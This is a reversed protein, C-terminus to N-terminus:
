RSRVRPSLLVEYVWGDETDYVVVGEVMGAIPDRTHEAAILSLAMFEEMVDIVVVRQSGSGVPTGYAAVALTTRTGYSHSDNTVGM